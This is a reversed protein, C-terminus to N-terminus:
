SHTEGHPLSGPSIPTRKPFFTCRATWQKPLRSLSFSGVVLSFIPAITMALVIALVLWPFVRALVNRGAGAAVPQRNATTLTASM